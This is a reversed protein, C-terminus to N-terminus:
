KKIINDIKRDRLDSITGFNELSIQIPRDLDDHCCWVGVRLDGTKESYQARLISYEKGVTLTDINYGGLYFLIKSKDGYLFIYEIHAMIVTENTKTKQM